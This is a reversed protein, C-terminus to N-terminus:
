KNSVNKKRLMGSCSSSAQLGATIAWFPRPTIRSATSPARGTGSGRTGPFARRRDDRTLASEALDPHISHNCSDMLPFVQEVPHGIAEDKRFGSLEEAAPNIRRIRTELDTAVVADGISDLTIALDRESSRLSQEAKQIRELQEHLSANLDSIQEVNHRLREMLLNYHERVASHDLNLRAVEKQWVAKQDLADKGM